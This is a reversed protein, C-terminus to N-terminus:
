GPAAIFGLDGGIVYGGASAVAEALVFIIRPVYEACGGFVM